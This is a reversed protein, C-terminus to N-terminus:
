FRNAPALIEGTLSVALSEIRRLLPLFTQLSAASTGQAEAADCANVIEELRALLGELSEASQHAKSELCDAMGDLVKALCDDFERQAVRVPEPLEFGPLRLRYKLVQRLRM